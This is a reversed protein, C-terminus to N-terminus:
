KEGILIRTARFKHMASAMLLSIVMAITFNVAAHLYPNLVGNLCYISLQIVQQHFLYVAMSRRSIFDFVSKKWKVKDAIWQLIVFAMVAGTVSTLFNVGKTMLKWIMGNYRTLFQGLVFLVVNITLWVLGPIKRIISGKQRLVFGLWFFPIYQLATWIMFYNPCVSSGAVGIGYMGLAIVLGLLKHKKIFDSLPWYIVFVDFLMILFWLQGPRQALLYHNVVDKLGTPTLLCSIPIVWAVAAFGYPLLLRKTKNGVFSWFAQYRNKEYKLYFFLYGSVLTFAYIHFSNLWQAFVGLTKVTCVPDKTFWNGGWFLMSHYLVVLLMLITKVFTCNELERQKDRMRIIGKM